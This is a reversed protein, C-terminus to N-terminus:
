KGSKHYVLAESQDLTVRILEKQLDEGVVNLRM